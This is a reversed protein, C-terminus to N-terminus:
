RANNEHANKHGGYMIYNLAKCSHCKIEMMPDSRKGSWDGMARGLKHGCEECRVWGDKCLRAM